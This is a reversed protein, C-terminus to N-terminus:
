RHHLVAQSTEVAGYKSVALYQMCKVFLQIRHDAYMDMADQM